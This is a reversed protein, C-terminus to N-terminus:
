FSPFIVPSFTVSSFDTLFFSDSSFGASGDDLSYDRAIHCSNPVKNQSKDFKVLISCRTLSSITFIIAFNEGHQAFRFSTVVKSYHEGGVQNTPLWHWFMKLNKQLFFNFNETAKCRYIDAFCPSIGFCGEPNPLSQIEPTQLVGNGIRRWTPFM